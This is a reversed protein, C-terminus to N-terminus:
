VQSLRDGLYQTGRVRPSSGPMGKQNGCDPRTNGAHAPIFRPHWADNGRLRTNGAHAPIFRSM